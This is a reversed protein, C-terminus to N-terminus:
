EQKHLSEYDKITNLNFVIKKDNIIEYDIMINKLSNICSADIISIGTFFCDKDNYKIEFETVVNFSNVFDKTVLISTWIKNSSYQSLIKKIIVNDLLPMDGSVVFVHDNIDQLVSNLDQVYGQGSSMIMQMPTHIPSTQKQSLNKIHEITRPSNLSLVVVIKEFCRSSDLAELVHNIIPKNMFKLLLKDQKQLKMRSGKGGAMVIGIMNVTVLYALYYYSRKM